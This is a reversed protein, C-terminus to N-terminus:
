QTPPMEDLIAQLRERRHPPLELTKAITDLIWGLIIKRTEWYADGKLLKKVSVPEKRFPTDQEDLPRFIQDVAHLLVRRVKSQRDANGQVMGLYDDVYIDFQALIRRAHQM